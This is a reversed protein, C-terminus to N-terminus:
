NWRKEKLFRSDKRIFLLDIQYLAKDFPRRMLQCIDYSQFGQEDMFHVVDSLLPENQLQLLSVELLCFEAQDLSEKAGGLVELEYGQVDLKLFDPYSFGRKKLINDLTESEYAFYKETKNIVVHSSTEDEHFYIEKGHEDSLVAIHSFVNSYDSCVEELKNLKGPQAEIMLIKASPFVELFDKAWNGEYAGIDVVFSPNYGLQKLNHLSWHLSPVGLMEKVSRKYKASLLKKLLSIM